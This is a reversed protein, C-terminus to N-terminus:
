FTIRAAIQLSQGEVTVSNYSEKFWKVGVSFKRQPLRVDQSFGVVNVEYSEFTLLQTAKSRTADIVQVDAPTLRWYGVGTTDFTAPTLANSDTPLDVIVTYTAVSILNGKLGKFNELTYLQFWEQYTVGADLLAASNTANAGPTHIGRVQAHALPARVFLAVFALLGVVFRRLDPGMLGRRIRLVVMLTGIVRVRM